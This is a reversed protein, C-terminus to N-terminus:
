VTTNVACHAPCNAICNRFPKTSLPTGSVDHLRTYGLKLVAELIMRPEKDLRDDIYLVNRRLADRRSHEATFWFRNDVSM